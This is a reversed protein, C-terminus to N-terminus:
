TTRAAVTLKNVPQSREHILLSGVAVHGGSGFSACRMRLGLVFTIQDLM